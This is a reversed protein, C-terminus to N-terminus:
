SSSPGTDSEAKEGEIDRYGWQSACRRARAVAADRPLSGAAARSPTTTERRRSWRSSRSCRCCTTRSSTAFRASPTTSAGAITSASTRPWRSRSRPSTSATGSRSSSRTPSGCTCSTRCPSRGWSTTSGSSGNRRSSRRSSRNLERASALDTGVPKEVVRRSSDGVLDAAALEEAIEDFMTPPTALYFVPLEAGDLERRLGDYMTGEEADGSVYRLRAVLDALVKDDVDKEAARVAETVQQEIRRAHAGQSRRRRDPM